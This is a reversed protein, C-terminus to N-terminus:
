CNLNSLFNIQFKIYFFMPVYLSHRVMLHSGRHRVLLLLAKCALHLSEAQRFAPSEDTAEKDYGDGDGNRNGKMFQNEIMKNNNNDYNNNSSSNDSSNKNNFKNGDKSLYSNGDAASYSSSNVQYVNQENGDIEFFKSRSNYNEPTFGTKSNKSYFQLDQSSM